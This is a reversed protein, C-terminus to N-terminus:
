RVSEGVARSFQRMEETLSTMRAIQRQLVETAQQRIEPDSSTNLLELAVAMAGVPTRIDHELRSARDSWGLQRSHQLALKASDRRRRRLLLVVSVAFGVGVSWAFGSPRSCLPDAHPKPKIQPKPMM